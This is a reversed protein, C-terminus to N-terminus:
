WSSLKECKYAKSPEATGDKSLKFEYYAAVKDPGLVIAYNYTSDNSDLGWNWRKKLGEMLHSAPIRENFVKIYSKSEWEVLWLIDETGSYEKCSWIIKTNETISDEAFAIPLFMNPLTLIVGLLFYKKKNM